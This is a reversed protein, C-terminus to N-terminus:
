SVARGGEAAAARTVGTLARARAERRERLKRRAEEKTLELKSKAM